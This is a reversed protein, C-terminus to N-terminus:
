VKGRNLAKMKAYEYEFLAIIFPFALGRSADTVLLTISTGLLYLLLVVLFMHEKLANKWGIKSLIYVMRILPAVYFPIAFIGLEAILGVFGVDSIYATGRLGHAM